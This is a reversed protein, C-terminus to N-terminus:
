KGTAKAIAARALRAIKNITGPEDEMGATPGAEKIIADLTSLGVARDYDLRLPTLGTDHAVTLAEAVIAARKERDPSSGYCECVGVWSKGDWTRVHCTGHEGNNNDVVFLGSAHTNTQKSM